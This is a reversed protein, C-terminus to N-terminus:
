WGPEIPIQQLVEPGCAGAPLGPDTFYQLAGDFPRFLGLGQFVESRREALGEDGVQAALTFRASRALPAPM